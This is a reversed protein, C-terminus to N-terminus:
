WETNGGGDGGGTTRNVMVYMTVTSVEGTKTDTMTASIEHEGNKNSGYSFTRSTNTSTYNQSSDQLYRIKWTVNSFSGSGGSVGTINFTVNPNNNTIDGSLPTANISMPNYTYVTKPDSWQYRDNYKLDIAKVKVTYSGASNYQYSFERWTESQKVNNVYWEYKYKGSGGSVNTATFQVTTGKVVHTKSSIIPKTISSFVEVSIEKEKKIGTIVDRLVYRFTKIGPSTFTRTFVGNSSGVKADGEWWSDSYSGSGGGAYSGTFTVSTGVFIPISGNHSVNPINLPPYKVSIRLTKSVTRKTKSDYALVTINYDGETDFTKVFTSNGNSQEEFGNVKWTYSFQGGGESFSASFSIPKGPTLPGSSTISITLDGYQNLLQDEYNYSIKEIVKNDTDVILRLRNFEDYEYYSTYGKPDTMSTMGILQDYTYTTVMANPLAARLNDLAQRLTGEKGAYNKTRDNDANSKTKLDAVFSSVEPFKANEIKAIPYQNNYGWIYVTYLEERLSIEEINGTSDYKNFKRINYLTNSGKSYQYKQPKVLGNSNFHYVIKEKSIPADNLFKLTEIPTNIDNANKLNVLAVDTSSEYDTVYKFQTEIKNSKFLNKATIKTPLMHTSSAKEFTLLEDLLIEGEKSYSKNIQEKIYPFYSRIEGFELLHTREHRSTLICGECNGRPIFKTSQFETSIRLTNQNVQIHKEPNQDYKYSSFSVIQGDQNYDTKSLLLGRLPDRNIHLNDHLLDSGNETKFPYRVKDVNINPYDEPNSFRYVSKGNEGSKVIVKSYGVWGGKTKEIPYLNRSSRKIYQYTDMANFDQSTHSFNHDAQFYFHWNRDLFNVVRGSSSSPTDYIYEKESKNDVGDNSIIKKVRLGGMKMKLRLDKNLYTNQEYLIQHHGRTPYIVKSLMAIKTKEEDPIRNAGSFSKGNRHGNPVLTNSTNNNFYGFFDQQYSQKSPLKATENYEFSYTKADEKETVEEFKRLKLRSSKILDIYPYGIFYDYDFVFKKIAKLNNDSIIIEHLAYNNPLDLRSKQQTKLEISGSNFSVKSLYKPNDITRLTPIWYSKNPSAYVDIILNTGNPSNSSISNSIRNRNFYECDNLPSYRDSSTRIYDFKQEIVDYNELPGQEKYQLNIETNFKSSSIKSLYWTNVIANEKRHERYDEATSTDELLPRKKFEEKTEKTEAWSYHGLTSTRTTETYENNNPFEYKIGDPTKIIWSSKALPGIASEIIVGPTGSIIQPKGFKDLIFSGSGTPVSYSFIDPQTDLERNWFFYSNAPGNYNALRHLLKVQCKEKCNIVEGSSRCSFTENNKIIEAYDDITYGGTNGFPFQDNSGPSFDPLDNFRGYNEYYTGGQSNTAIIDEDPNGIIERRIYGSASLNWGLGVWSAEEDVQIGDKSYTLNIPFILDKNKVEYIPININVKGTYLDVLEPNSYDIFGSSSPNTLFDNPNENGVMSISQSAVLKFIFLVIITLFQNSKM